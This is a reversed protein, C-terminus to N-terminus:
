ARCRPAAITATPLSLRCSLLFSTRVKSVLEVKAHHPPHHRPGPSNFTSNPCLRKAQRAQSQPTPPFNKSPKPHLALSPAGLSTRPSPAIPPTTEPVNTRPNTLAPHRQVAAFRQVPALKQPYSSRQTSQHTTDPGLPSLLRTPTHIGLWCCVHAPTLRIENLSVPTSFDRECM